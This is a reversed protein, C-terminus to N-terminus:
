GNLRWGTTGRIREILKEAPDLRRRQFYEWIIRQNSNLILSENPARLNAIWEWLMILFNVKESRAPVGRLIDLLRTIQGKKGEDYKGTACQLIVWFLAPGPKTPIVWPVYDLEQEIADLFDQPYADESKPIDTSM